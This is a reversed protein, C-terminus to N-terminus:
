EVAKSYQHDDGKCARVSTLDLRSLPEEEDEEEGPSSTADSAAESTPGEFAASGLGSRGLM